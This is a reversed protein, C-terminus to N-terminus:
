NPNSSSGHLSYGVDDGTALVRAGAEYPYDDKFIFEYFVVHSTLFLSALSFELERGMIRKPHSEPCAEGGDPRSTGNAYSM